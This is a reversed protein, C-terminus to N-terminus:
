AEPQRTLQDGLEQLKGDRPRAMPVALWPIPVARANWTFSTAPANEPRAMPKFARAVATRKGTIQRSINQDRDGAGRTATQM